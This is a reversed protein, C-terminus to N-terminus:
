SYLGASHLLRSPLEFEFRKCHVPSFLLQLNVQIRSNGWDSVFVLESSSETSSSSSPPTCAAEVAIGRPEKFQGEGCGATGFSSLFAGDPSFVQWVNVSM